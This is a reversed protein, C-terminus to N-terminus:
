ERGAPFGGVRRKPAVIEGTPAVAPRIETGPTAPAFMGSKRDTDSFGHGFATTKPDLTGTQQMRKGNDRAAPRM